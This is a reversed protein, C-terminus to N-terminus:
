EGCLEVWQIAEGATVADIGNCGNENDEVMEMRFITHTCKLRSPLGAGDEALYEFAVEVPLQTANPCPSNYWYDQEVIWTIESFTGSNIRYLKREVHGGRSPGDCYGYEHIL